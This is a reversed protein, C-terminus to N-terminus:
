KFKAAALEAWLADAGVAFKVTWFDRLGLAELRQPM